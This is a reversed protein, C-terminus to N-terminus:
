LELADKLQVIRYELEKFDIFKAQRHLEKGAYFLMIVPAAFLNLYGRAMPTQLTDVHYIEVSHKQALHEARPEDAFCVSCTPISAYILTLQQANIKVEIESVSNLYQM